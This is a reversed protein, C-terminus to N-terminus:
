GLGLFTFSKVESEKGEEEEEKRWLAGSGSHWIRFLNRWGELWGLFRNNNRLCLCVGGFVVKGGTKRRQSLKNPPFGPTASLGM